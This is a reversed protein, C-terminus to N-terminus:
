SITIINGFRPLINPMIVPIVYLLLWFVLYPNNPCFMLVLLGPHCGNLFKFPFLKGALFLLKLLRDGGGGAFKNLLIPPNLENDFLLLRNDPSSFRFM